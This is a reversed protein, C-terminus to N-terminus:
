LSAIALLQQRRAEPALKALQRCAAYFAPLDHHHQALMAQLAPVDDYYTAVTNLKANNIGAFWADYGAYGGWSERLATYAAHLEAYIQQKAARKQADTGSAFAAELRHRYELVLAVFQEHRQRALRLKDLDLPHVASYRRLGEDAVTVAFSENFVTDGSVFLLQHALEHFLLEALAADSDYIFSSLVPDRFWGLTSYAPVGDTYVELGEAKLSAAYAQAAEQKFFGRYTLCGVFWYCWDHPKLSLEPAAMVSWVPYPRGLEVYSDYQKAAPLKLENGAFARISQVVELRERLRPATKGDDLLQTIPKRAALLSVQGEVAQTYYSLTQCGTLSFAFLPILWRLARHITM